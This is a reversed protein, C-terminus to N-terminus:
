LQAPSHSQLSSRFTYVAINLAHLANATLAQSAQSSSKKMQADLAVEKRGMAEAASGRSASTARVM